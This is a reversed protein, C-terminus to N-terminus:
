AHGGTFLELLKNTPLKQNAAKVGMEITKQSDPKTFLSVVGLMSIGTDFKLKEDKTLNAYKACSLKRGGRRAVSRIRKTTHDITDVIASDDCRKLGVGLVSEFVISDDHMLRKRATNLYGRAKKQVDSKILLSLDSYKVVENPLVKKLAEMLVQTDVSIEAISKSPETM